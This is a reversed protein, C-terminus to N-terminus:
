RVVFVLVDRFILVVDVLEVEIKSWGCLRLDLVCIEVGAVIAIWRGLDVRCQRRDM